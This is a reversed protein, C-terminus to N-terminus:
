IKIILWLLVVCRLFTSVVIVIGFITLSLQLNNQFQGSISRLFVFYIFTFLLVLCSVGYIKVVGKFGINNYFYEKGSKPKGSPPIPEVTQKIGAIIALAALVFGGASLSSSILENLIDSVADIKYYFLNYNNSFFYSIIVVITALSFDASVHSDLYFDIPYYYWKKNFGLTKRLKRELQDM